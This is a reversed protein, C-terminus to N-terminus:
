HCDVWSINVPSGVNSKLESHSRFRQLHSEAKLFTLQIIMQLGSMILAAVYLCNSSDTYVVSPGRTPVFMNDTKCKSGALEGATLMVSQM